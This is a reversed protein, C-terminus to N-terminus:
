HMNAWHMNAAYEDGIKRLDWYLQTIDDDHWTDDVFCCPVGIVDPGLTEMTNRFSSLMAEQTLENDMLIHIVGWGSFIERLAPFDAQSYKYALSLGKLKPDHDLYVGKCPHPGCNHLLGHGWPRLLRNNYPICFEKFLRPSITAATDDSFFGKYPEPVWIPDFDITTLREKGGVTQVLTQVIELQVETALNLLYHLPQPHDYFATYLLDTDLLDRCTLLPGGLDLGSLYVDKPLREAHMRFRRINEPMLGADMGPRKLSYVQEIDHILHGKVGPPQNPDESWHPQMGFMTAITMYGPWVRVWPIYDDPILRLCKEVTKVNVEFQIETDETAQRQTYGFTWTPWIFVPIHDVPKYKWLDRRFQKQREVDQHDIDLTIM